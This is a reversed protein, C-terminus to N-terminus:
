TTFTYKYDVLGMFVRGLDRKYEGFVWQDQVYHGRNFKRKWFKSEDIEVVKEEGGM